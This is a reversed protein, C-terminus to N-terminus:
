QEEGDRLEIIRRILDQKLFRFGPKDPANELVELLYGVERRNVLLLARLVSMM